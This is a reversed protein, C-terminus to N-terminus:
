GAQALAEDRSQAADGDERAYYGLEVLLDDPDTHLFESIAQIFDASPTNPLTEPAIPQPSQTTM